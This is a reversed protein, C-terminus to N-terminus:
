QSKEIREHVTLIRYLAPKNDITDIIVDVIYASTFPNESGLIMKAKVDDNNFITKVSEMQISEIIARDGVKSKPDNRAQYWHLVVKEKLGMVPEKLKNVEKEIMNQAANAEISNLNLVVNMVGNNTFNSFNMQGAKDKAVPEIIKVFNEYSTKTLSTKETTKGLLYDYVIKLYKSFEKISNIHETFPLLYPAISVVDTIISGTKIEKVYLKVDEDKLLPYEKEIYQKYESALGLFSNTLDILEIPEKNKIEIRLRTIDDSSTIDMLSRKNKLFILMKIYAKYFLYTKM